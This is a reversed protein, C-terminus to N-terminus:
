DFSARDNAVKHRLESGPEFFRRMHQHFRAGILRLRRGRRNCLCMGAVWCPRKRRKAGHEAPNPLAPLGESLLGEHLTAWTRRLSAQEAQESGVQFPLTTSDLSWAVTTALQPSPLAQWSSGMASKLAPSTALATGLAEGHGFNDLWASDDMHQQEDEPPPPSVAIKSSAAIGHVIEINWQGGGVSLWSGWVVNLM